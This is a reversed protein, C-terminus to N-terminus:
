KVYGAKFGRDVSSSHCPARPEGGELKWTAGAWCSDLMIIVYSSNRLYLPTLPILFTIKIKYTVIKM